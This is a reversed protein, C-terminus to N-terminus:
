AASRKLLRGFNVTWGVGFATPVIIHHDDPNWVRSRVRSVTPRRLDYPVMGGLRGHWTREAAPKRLEAAVAAGILTMTLGLRFRRQRKKKRPKDNTM